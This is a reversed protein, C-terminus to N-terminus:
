VVLVTVRPGIRVDIRNATRYMDGDVTYSQQKAPELIMRDAVRDVTQHNGLPRGFFIQPLANVLKAPSMQTDLVHFHRPKEFARYMPRFGIGLNEITQALVATHAEFPVNYDGITVQGSWPAFLERAFDSRQVVSVIGRQVVYAAKLPGTNGGEYYANLFNSVLGVGFIFGVKGDVLLTDREAFRLTHNRDIAERYRHAIGESPGTVGVSHCVMNMTGGGLTLLKPLPRDGYVKYFSTLTHHLTGDGGCIGLVECGWDLAERAIAEISEISRTQRVRAEPGLIRELKDVLEPRKQNRKANPNIIVCLRM